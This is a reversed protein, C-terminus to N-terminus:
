KENIVAKYGLNKLTVISFDGCDSFKERLRNIHVYVTSEDSESDWGWIEDMLQQKTFIRGPYSLLKHLLLFEKQPLEVSKCGYSASYTKEDLTFGGAHLVNERSIKMRRLLARIRLVLENIDIPKVMYDDAGTLFGREKDAFSDRATIYMVCADGSLEKVNKVFDYGNMKPMMIDTVILDPRKKEFAALAAEGNDAAECNYGNKKLVSCILQLLERDDEVVLIDYM